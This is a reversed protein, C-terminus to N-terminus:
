LSRSTADAFNGAKARDLETPRFLCTREGPITVAARREGGVGGVIVHEKRQCHREPAAAASGTLVSQHWPPERNTNVNALARSSSSSMSKKSPILRRRM